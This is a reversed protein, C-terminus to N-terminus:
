KFDVPFKNYTETRKKIDEFSDDILLEGNKFVTRLQDEGECSIPVTSYEFNDNLLLKFRGKKSKKSSDLPKKFIDIWEGNRLQASCKFANRQTDRNVATHLGGGMGFILNEAAWGQTKIGFLIDRIKQYNM